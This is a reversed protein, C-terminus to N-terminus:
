RRVAPTEVPLGQGRWAIYLELNVYEDAGYAYPQARVNKNCGRFRRHASGLKQWKLRYLPFGNIQGQSLLDARVYNGYQDEHCSSCAMDLQGRRQYFFEEGKEFFPRAPGDIAVTVPMGRSQMRVFATMGLLEDSEWKYADAKMRDTRCKNIQQELNVLKGAEAKYKPYSMGASKMSESADGHCDACSKGAEGEATSWLEEGKEVWLYGPNMFDDQQMELTEKSTFHAGSLVEDLPNEPKEEAFASGAMGLGVVAAIVAIIKNRKM